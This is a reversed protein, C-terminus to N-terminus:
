FKTQIKTFILSGMIPFYKIDETWIIPFHLQGQLMDLEVIYQIVNYRLWATNPFM